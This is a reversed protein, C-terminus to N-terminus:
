DYDLEICVVFVFLNLDNSNCQKKNDAITTERIIPCRSDSVSTCKPASRINKTQSLCSNRDALSLHKGKTKSHRNFPSFLLISYCWWKLPLSTRYSEMGKVNGKENVNVFSISCDMQFYISKLDSLLYWIELYENSSNVQIREHSTLKYLYRM